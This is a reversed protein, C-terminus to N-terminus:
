NSHASSAAILANTGISEKEKREDRKTSFIIRRCGKELGSNAKAGVALNEFKKLTGQPKPKKIGDVRPRKETKM